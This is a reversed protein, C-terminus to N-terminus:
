HSSNPFRPLPLSQPNKVNRKGYPRVRRLQRSDFAALKRSRCPQAARNAIKKSDALSVHKVLVTECYLFL